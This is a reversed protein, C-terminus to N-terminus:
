PSQLVALNWTSLAQKNIYGAKVIDNSFETVKIKVTKLAKNILVFIMFVEMPFM